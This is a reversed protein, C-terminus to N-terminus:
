SGEEIYIYIPSNMSSDIEVITGNQTITSNEEKLIENIITDCTSDICFPESILHEEDIGVINDYYNLTANYHNDENYNTILFPNETNYFSNYNSYGELNSNEMDIHFINEFNSYTSNYSILNEISQEKLLSENKGYFVSDYIELNKISNFKLIYDDNELDTPNIISNDFILTDINYSNELIM